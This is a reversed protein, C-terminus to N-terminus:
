SAWASSPRSVVSSEPDPDDRELLHDVDLVAVLVHGGVLHRCACAHEVYGAGLQAPAQRLAALDRGPEREGLHRRLQAPAVRGPRVLAERHEEGAQGAGALGGDGADQEGLQELLAAPGTVRSSPSM